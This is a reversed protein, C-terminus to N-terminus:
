KVDGVNECVHVCVWKNNEVGISGLRICVLSNLRCCLVAEMAAVCPRSELSRFSKLKESSACSRFIHRFLGRKTYWRRGDRIQIVFAFHSYMRQFRCWLQCFWWANVRCYVRISAFYRGLYFSLACNPSGPHTTSAM